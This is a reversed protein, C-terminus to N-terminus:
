MAQRRAELLKERDKTDQLNLVGDVNVSVGGVVTPGIFAPVATTTTGGQNIVITNQTTGTTTTSTTPTTTPTSTQSTAQRAPLMWAIAALLFILASLKARDFASRSSM